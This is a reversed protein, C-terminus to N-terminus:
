EEDEDDDDPWLELSGDPMIEFGALPLHGGDDGLVKVIAQPDCDKLFEILREVTM